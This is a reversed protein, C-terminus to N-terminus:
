NDDSPFELQRQDFSNADSVGATGYAPLGYYSALAALLANCMNTEPAAYAHITTQMDMLGIVGGYLCLAGENVLQSIVLGSLLEANGTVVAGAITVPASGGLVMGLTYKIPIKHQACFLLKKLREESHQLPSTTVESHFFFPRDQFQIEGGSIVKAISYIDALSNSDIAQFIIPKTTNEVM